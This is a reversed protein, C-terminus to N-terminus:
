RQTKSLQILETNMAPKKCIQRLTTTLYEAHFSKTCMGELHMVLSIFATSVLKGKPGPLPSCVAFKFVTIIVLKLEIAQKTLVESLVNQHALVLHVHRDLVHVFLSLPGYSQLSLIVAPNQLPLATSKIALGFRQNSECPFPMYKVDSCSTVWLQPSGVREWFLASM